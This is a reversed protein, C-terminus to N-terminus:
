FRKSNRCDAFIHWDIDPCTSTGAPTHCQHFGCVGNHHRQRRNCQCYPQGASLRPLLMEVTSLSTTTPRNISVSPGERRGRHGNSACVQRQAGLLVTLLPSLVSLTAVSLLKSLKQCHAPRTRM